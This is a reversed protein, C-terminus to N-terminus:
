MGQHSDNRRLQREETRKCGKWDEIKEEQKPLCPVRHAPSTAAAALLPTHPTPTAKLALIPPSRQMPDFFQVVNSTQPGTYM